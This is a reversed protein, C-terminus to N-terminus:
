TCSPTRKALGVCVGCIEKEGEGFSVSGCHAFKIARYVLYRM